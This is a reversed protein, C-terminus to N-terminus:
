CQFTLSPIFGLNVKFRDIWGMTALNAFDSFYGVFVNGGLRVEVQFVKYSCYLMQRTISDTGCNHQLCHINSCLLDLNPDPVGLGQFWLPLM